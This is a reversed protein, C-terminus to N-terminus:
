CHVKLPALPPQLLIDIFNTTRVHGHLVVAVGGVVVGPFNASRMLDSIERAIELLVGRKELLLVAEDRLNCKRRTFRTKDDPHKM